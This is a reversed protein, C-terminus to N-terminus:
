RFRYAFTLMFYQGITNWEQQVLYNSNSIRQIGVFKNLLDFGKVTLSAKEAQMFSYSLSATILPITVSENFSQSNFNTVIAKTQFNWKNTPSYRFYAYYSTNFFNNDPIEAISFQSETFSISGGVRISVKDKTRNQFNLDLMHTLNTNVNEKTNILSINRTWTERSTINIDVGLSRIPASFGIYSILYQSNDVNVPRTTQILQDDVNQSFSIKDKTYNGSLRIFLSTFSFEDFISWTLNLNHRYEPRLALNGEYVALQNLTNAIPFLQNASPMGISTNYRMEVRRGSRYNNRFFISPTLFFYKPKESSVATLEKEFQSTYGKFSVSVQKKLSGRRFTLEPQFITEDTSFGPIGADILDGEDNFQGETRNLNNNNVAIRAGIDISWYKSLKQTFTPTVSFAFRDTNNNRLQHITNIGSPDFLTTINTWDLVSKNKNYNLSYRTSLQTDNGKLKISYSGVANVALEDSNNITNNNLTNVPNANLDSNTLSQSFVRNSGATIDGKLILKQTTGFSHNIGFDIDHPKDRESEILESLQNYTGNELFNQTSTEEELKKKRSNGLYSLYYRDGTKTNYSLNLGGAFSENIGKISRGFTNNGKNTFGFENINNYMGLVATQITSSFRYIKAQTKYSGQTGAGGNIEGFYGRKHDEKLVLNITRERVGDEIGTFAAQDSKLDLVQVKDIAMAPLNKTAVKPDNGFFEKGDVLVKTVDEGQAKVNGSEDVEIGPLKELLEEM